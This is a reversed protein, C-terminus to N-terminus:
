PGAAKLYRNLLDARQSSELMQREAAELMDYIEQKELQVLSQYTMGEDRELLRMLPYVHVIGFRHEGHCEVWLVLGDNAMQHHQYHVTAVAPCKTCVVRLPDPIVFSM